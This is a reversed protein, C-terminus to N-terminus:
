QNKWGFNLPSSPTGGIRKLQIKNKTVLFGMFFKLVRPCSRRTEGLSSFLAMLQPCQMPKAEPGHMCESQVLILERPQRSTCLVNKSAIAERTTM